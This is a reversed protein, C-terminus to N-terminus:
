VTQETKDERYLGIVDGLFAMYRERLEQPEIIEAETGFKILWSFFPVPNETNASVRAIFHEEGDSVIWTNKGFRDLIVSVLKNNFRLKVNESKGSFMSFSSNLYGAVDFDKPLAKSTDSLIEVDEMRDVRFHTYNDPHNECYSVLYYREESWTLVYPSCIRLGDHYVKKKNVDYNFYKFRIQRKETIARQIVDVNLYIRENMSKVRDSVYVTRRLQKADYRSSLKTLKGLLENSKKETLFRSSCVADALLKLEPLEFERSCVYYGSNRGSSLIDIGFVKLAEIDEYLAKRAVTIGYGELKDIIEGATLCHQEDTEEYMIRCLYLIRLRLNSRRAESSM